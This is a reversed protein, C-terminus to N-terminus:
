RLWAGAVAAQSAVRGPHGELASSWATEGHRVVYVDHESGVM